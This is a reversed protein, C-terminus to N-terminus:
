CTSHQCMYAQAESKNHAALSDLVVMKRSCRVGPTWQRKCCHNGIFVATVVFWWHPQSSASFHNYVVNHVIGWTCHLLSPTGLPTLPYDVQAYSVLNLRKLSAENEHMTMCQYAYLSKQLTSLKAAKTIVKHTYTLQNLQHSISNGLWVICAGLVWCGWCEHLKECWRLV